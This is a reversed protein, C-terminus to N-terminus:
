AERNPIKSIIEGRGRGNREPSDSMINRKVTFGVGNVRM